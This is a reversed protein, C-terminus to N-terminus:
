KWSPNIYKKNKTKNFKVKNNTFNLLYNIIDNIFTRKNSSLILKDPNTNQILYNIYEMVSIM